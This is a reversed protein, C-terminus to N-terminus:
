IYSYSMDTLKSTILIAQHELATIQGSLSRQDPDIKGGNWPRAKRNSPPLGFDVCLSSSCCSTFPIEYSLPLRCCRELFYSTELKMNYAANVLFQLVRKVM